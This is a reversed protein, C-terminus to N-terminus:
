YSQVFILFIHGFFCAPGRGGRSVARQYGARVPREGARSCRGYRQACGADQVRVPARVASNLALAGCRSYWDPRPRPPQSDSPLYVPLLRM